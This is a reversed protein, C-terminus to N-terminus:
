AKVKPKWEKPKNTKLCVAEGTPPAGLAVQCEKIAIEAAVEMAELAQKETSFPTPSQLEIPPFKNQDLGIISVKLNWMWQGVWTPDNACEEVQGVRGQVRPAGFADRSM